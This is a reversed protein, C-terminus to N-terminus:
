ASSEVPPDPYWENWDRDFTWPKGCALCIGEGVTLVAKIEGGCTCTPPPPAREANPAGPQAVPAAKPVRELKWAAIVDPELMLKRVMAPVNRAKREVAIRAAYERLSAQEEEPSNDVLAAAAKAPTPNPQGALNPKDALYPLTPPNGQPVGIPGGYAGQPVGIPGGYAGQPVGVPAGEPIADYQYGIGKLMSLVAPPLSALVRDIGARTDKSHTKQHKPWNPLIIYEEVFAAKRAEEFSALIETLRGKDIGTDFSMRRSTIKYVGAINTLSNTLLYMYLLKEDPELEQIWADDWFCTAVYRHTSM